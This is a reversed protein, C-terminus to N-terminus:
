ARHYGSGGHGTRSDEEPDPNRPTWLFHALSCCFPCSFCLSTFPHPVQSLHLQSMMLEGELDAAGLDSSALPFSLSLLELVPKPMVTEHFYYRLLLVQLGSALQRWIPSQFSQASRFPRYMLTSMNKEGKCPNSFVSGNENLAAMTFGFYDTM